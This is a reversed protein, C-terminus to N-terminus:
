RYRHLDEQFERMMFEELGSNDRARASLTMNKGTRKSYWSFDEREYQRIIEIIKRVVAIDIDSHDGKRVEILQLADRRFNENWGFFMFEAYDYGRRRIQFLGGHHSPKKPEFSMPASPKAASARDADQPADAEGRERRRAAITAAFDLEAAPPAARPAPPAEPKPTPVIAVPETATPKNLAIVPAPAKVAPQPPQKQQAPPQPTVRAPSQPEPERPLIPQPSPRLYATMPPPELQETQPKNLRPMWLLLAIHALLSVVIWIAITPITVGDHRPRYGHLDDLLASM